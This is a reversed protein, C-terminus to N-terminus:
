KKDSKTAQAKELNSQDTAEVMMKPVRVQGSLTPQVQRLQITVSLIEGEDMQAFAEKHTEAQVGTQTIIIWERMINIEGNTAQQQTDSKRWVFDYLASRWQGADLADRVKACTSEPRLGGTIQDVCPMGLWRAVPTAWSSILDTGIKM